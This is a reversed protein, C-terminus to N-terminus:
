VHFYKDLILAYFGAESPKLRSTDATDEPEFMWGLHAGCHSCVCVKWHYGPYWSALGTWDGVGQCGTRAFTVVRFQVGSPNRLLEVPVRPGPTGFLSMNGRELNMPSLQSSGM